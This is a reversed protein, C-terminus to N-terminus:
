VNRLPFRCAALLAHVGRKGEQANLLGVRCSFTQSYSPLHGIHALLNGANLPVRGGPSQSYDTTIALGVRRSIGQSNGPQVIRRGWSEGAGGSAGAKGCLPEHVPACASVQDGLIDWPMARDQVRICPLTIVAAMRGMGHATVPSPLPCTIILMISNALDVAVDPKMTRLCPLALM